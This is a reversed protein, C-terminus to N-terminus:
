GTASWIINKVLINTWLVVSNSGYYGFVFIKHCFVNAWSDYQLLKYLLMDHVICDFAKEMDIFAIISKSLGQAQRNKIISSLM